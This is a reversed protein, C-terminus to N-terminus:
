VAPEIYLSGQDGTTPIFDCPAITKAQLLWAELEAETTPTIPDSFFKAITSGVGVNDSLLSLTVYLRYTCSSFKVLRVTVTDITDAASGDSYNWIQCATGSLSCENIATSNNIAAGAQITDNCNVLTYTRAGDVWTGGFGYFSCQYYEPVDITVVDSTDCECSRSVTNAVPVVCLSCDGPACFRATFGDPDRNVSFGCLPDIKCCNIWKAAYGTASQDCCASDGSAGGTTMYITVDVTGPTVGSAQMKVKYGDTGADCTVNFEASEWYTGQDVVYITGISIDSFTIAYKSAWDYSARSVSGTEFCGTCCPTSGAGGGNFSSGGSSEYYIAEWRGSQINFFSPIIDGVDIGELQSYVTIAEGHEQYEQDQRSRWWLKCEGRYVDEHSTFSEQAKFLQVGPPQINAGTAQGSGWVNSSEERRLRNLFDATIQQGTKIPKPQKM